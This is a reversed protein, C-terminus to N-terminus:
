RSLHYSDLVRELRVGLAKEIGMLAEHYAALASLRSVELEIEIDQFEYEIRKSKILDSVETDASQTEELAKKKKAKLYKKKKKAM